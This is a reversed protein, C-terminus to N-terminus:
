VPSRIMSDAPIDKVKSMMELTFHFPASVAEEGAFRLLLLKDDGQTTTVTFPRGAQTFAASSSSAATAMAREPTAPEGAEPRCRSNAVQRRGLHCRRASRRRIRPGSM